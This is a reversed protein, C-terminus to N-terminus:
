IWRKGAKAAPAVPVAPPSAVAAPTVVVAEPLIEARSVQPTSPDTGSPAPTALLAVMPPRALLETLQNQLTQVQQGLQENQTRLGGLAVNVTERWEDLEEAVEEIEDHLVDRVAAEAIADRAAEAAEVRAEANELAGEVSAVAGEVVAEVTSAASEGAREAIDAM